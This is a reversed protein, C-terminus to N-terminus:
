TYSERQPDLVVPHHHKEFLTLLADTGGQRKAAHEAVTIPVVWWLNVPDGERQVHSPLTCLQKHLPELLLFHQLAGGEFLPGQEVPWQVTHGFYLFTDDVFPLRALWHLWGAYDASGDPVHWVLECRRVARPDAQADGKLPPPVNMPTDSMGVTVLTVGLGQARTDFSLVRIGHPADPTVERGQAGFLQELFDAVTLPV